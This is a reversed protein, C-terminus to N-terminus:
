WRKWTANNSNWMQNLITYERFTDMPQWFGEHQFAMLEGEEALQKLPEQELISEINLYNFIRPEFVFFGGNVSDVMQPKEKFAEVQGDAGVEIVGFRSLPKVTTVTALKGHSRHFAILESLNVDSLGDGYTCFFTEGDLYKEVLKLRGGTMTDLGTDAVTVSWSAEEIKSHFNLEHGIKVTFDSNLIQFNALWNSIFDKKYGACVIFDEFGYSAYYKMLHWLLPRGGVEIMPKPKIETEERIRTGYGGALFVTKMGLDYGLNDVVCM